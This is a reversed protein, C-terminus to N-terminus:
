GAARGLQWIIAEVQERSQGLAAFYSQANAADDTVDV